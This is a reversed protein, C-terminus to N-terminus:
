ADATMLSSLNELLSTPFGAEILKSIVDSLGNMEMNQTWTDPDLTEAPMEIEFADIPAANLAFSLVDKEESRLSLKVEASENETAEATLRLSFKKVQKELAEGLDADELLKDMLEETPVLDLQFSTTEDKKEAVFDVRLLPLYEAEEEDEDWTKVSLDFGGKATEKDEDAVVSGAAMLRVNKGENEDSFFCDAEFFLEEDERVTKGSFSILLEEEDYLEIERGRIEDDEDVYNKISLSVTIDESDTDRVEELLEDIRAEWNERLDDVDVDTNNSNQLAFLVLEKMNEDGKAETLLADTLQIIAEGELKTESVTCDVSKGNALTLTEEGNETEEIYEMVIDTYRQLMEEMAEPDNMFEPKVGVNNMSNLNIEDLNLPIEMFKESLAPIQMCVKGEETDIVLRADMFETGNLLAGLNVGNLTDVRGYDFRLGFSQLWNLDIGVASQLMELVEEDLANLDASAILNCGYFLDTEEQAKEEQTRKMSATLERASGNEAARYYLAPSAARLTESKVGSTVALGFAGLLMAAALIWALMKKM